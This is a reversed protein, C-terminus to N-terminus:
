LKGDSSQSRTLWEDIGDISCLAMSAIWMRKHDEDDARFVWVRGFGKRKAMGHINTQADNTGTSSGHVEEVVPRLEWELNGNDHLRHRSMDIHAFHRATKRDDLSANEIDNSNKTSPDDLSEALHHDRFYELIRQRQDLM